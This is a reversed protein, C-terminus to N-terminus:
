MGVRFDVWLNVCGCMKFFGKGCLFLDKIMEGFCCRMGFGDCILEDVM